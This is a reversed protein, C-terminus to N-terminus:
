KKTTEREIVDLGRLIALKVIGARSVHVGMARKTLLDALGDLRAITSADLRTSVGTETHRDDSM